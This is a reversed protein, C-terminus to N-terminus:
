KERQDLLMMAKCPLHQADPTLLLGNVQEHHLEHVHSVLEVCIRPQYPQSVSLRSDEFQLHLQYFELNSYDQGVAYRGRAYRQALNKQQAPMM